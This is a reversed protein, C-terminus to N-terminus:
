AAKDLQLLLSELESSIENAGLTTGVKVRSVRVRLIRVRVRSVRVRRAGVFEYDSLMVLDGVKCDFSNEKVLGQM